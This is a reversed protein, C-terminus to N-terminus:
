YLSRGALVAEDEVVLTVDISHGALWCLEMKWLGFIPSMKVAGSGLALISAAVRKCRRASAPGGAPM